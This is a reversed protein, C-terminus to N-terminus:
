SSRGKCARAASLAAARVGSVGDYLARMNATYRALRAARGGEADFLDLAVDFGAIVGAAPTFRFAGPSRSYHRHMDALDFSWSRAQGVCAELRDVRAVILGAGPLAELCKNTTCCVADVMPLAGIDFPLAGFASVADVIVRRGAEGSSPRLRRCTM